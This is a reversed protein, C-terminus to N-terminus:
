HKEKNACSDRYFYNCIRFSKINMKFYTSHFLSFLFFLLIRGADLLITDDEVNVLMVILAYVATIVSFTVCAHNLIKLVTKKLDMIISMIREWTNGSMM